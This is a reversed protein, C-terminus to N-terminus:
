TLDVYLEYFPKFWDDPYLNIPDELEALESLDLQPLGSEYLALVDMDEFLALRIADLDWDLSTRNTMAPVAIGIATLDRNIRNRNNELYQLVFHVALEEATTRPEPSEGSAITNAMTHFTETFATLFEDGQTAECIAPLREWLQGSHGTTLLATWEAFLIRAGSWMLMTNRPTLPCNRVKHDGVCECEYQGADGSIRPFLMNTDPATVVTVPNVGLSAPATITSAPSVRSIEITPTACETENM